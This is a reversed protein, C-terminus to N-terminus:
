RGNKLSDYFNQTSIGDLIIQQVTMKLFPEMVKELFLPEMYVSNDNPSMKIKQKTFLGICMRKTVATLGVEVWEIITGDFVTEIKLTSIDSLKKNLLEDKHYFSPFPNVAFLNALNVSIIEQCQEVWSEDNM